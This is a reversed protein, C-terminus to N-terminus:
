KQKLLNVRGKAYSVLAIVWESLLALEQSQTAFLEPKYTPKMVYAEIKRLRPMTLSDYPYNIM